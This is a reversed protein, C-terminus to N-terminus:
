RVHPYVGQIKLTIRYISSSATVYLTKYDSGGWAVNAVKEPLDITGLHKGAASFIWVGGPGASYLNGSQDVKMGDPSGPRSDSTADCILKGDTLTGDPKVVYRMWIKQPESNNVYLYKEDPSFAIGNPRPLDQVLLQLQARAPDTGPKQRAAGPARYVGNVKLQKAPDDDKQTRLGYPPDTFYLAGDSKYVLDNPSNLRKGQYSDALVTIPAKADVQELRWVNQRAHGAVTLRGAGDLTMGNSGPETGGFPASGQYGSPQMFISVGAGPTWKRITNSPIDAFMLYGSPMWVPGETWTFGSAVKELAAGAPVIQDLAPDLREISTPVKQPEEAVSGVASKFALSISGAPSKRALAVLATVSLVAMASLAVTRVLKSRIM